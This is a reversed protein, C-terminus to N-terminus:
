ARPKHRQSHPIPPFLYRVVLSLRTPRCSQFHNLVRDNYIQQIRSSSNMTTPTKYEKRKALSMLDGLSVWVDIVEM